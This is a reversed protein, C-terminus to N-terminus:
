HQETIHNNSPIVLAWPQGVIFFSNFLLLFIELRRFLICYYEVKAQTYKCFTKALGALALYYYDTKMELM